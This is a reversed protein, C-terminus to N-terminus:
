SVHIEKENRQRQIRDRLTVKPPKYQHKDTDFISKYHEHEISTPYKASSFVKIAKQMGVLNDVKSRSLEIRNQLKSTKEMNQNIRTMIRSFVDDVICNMNDLTDAIQLVTEEISLDNPILNVKYIGEM